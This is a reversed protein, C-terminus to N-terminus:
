VVPLGFPPEGRKSGTKKILPAKVTSVPFHYLSALEEINLIITRAGVQSSRQKYANFLLNQKAALRKEGAIAPKSTKAKDDPKFGNMDLTNFQNLAGLVGAVGRTKSFFEKKALYVMRFKVAFGIKSIKNQIAEIVRREGPSLDVKVAEEKAKGEGFGFILGVVQRWAEFIIDFFDRLPYFIDGLLSRKKAVKMGMLKKVLKIGQVKWSDSIPTIILQLWVQEGKQLKSMIELLDTLPDKLEGSLKHEFFPYTRIPYADDNYLVIDAAWCDYEEDPFTISLRNTYDEVEIIEAEPYTAYIAAEVMDRFQVPTRVLYQIQGDISILECSFSLPPDSKGGALHAFFREVAEPGQKNDKPVDIALLVYEVSNFFKKQQNFIWLRRFGFLFVLFFIVWGGYLFIKWFILLPPLDGLALLGSLDIIIEPMLM